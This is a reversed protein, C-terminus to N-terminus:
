DRAPEVNDYFRNVFRVIAKLKSSDSEIVDDRYRYGEEDFYFCHTLEVVKEDPIFEAWSGNGYIYGDKYNTANDRNYRSRLFTEAKNSEDLRHLRLASWVGTVTLWIQGDKDEKFSSDFPYRTTKPTM